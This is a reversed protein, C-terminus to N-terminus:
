PLGSTGTFMHQPIPKREEKSITVHDPVEINRKISQYSPNPPTKSQTAM